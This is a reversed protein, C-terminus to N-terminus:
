NKKAKKPLTNSRRKPLSKKQGYAQSYYNIIWRNHVQNEKIRVSFEGNNTENELAIELVKKDAEAKSALQINLSFAAFTAPRYEEELVFVQGQREVTISFTNGPELKTLSNVLKAANANNITQHNIKSIVDGVNLGIKDAISSIAIASIEVGKENANDILNGSFGFREDRVSERNIVLTKEILDKKNFTNFIELMLQDYEFKLLVPLAKYSLLIKESQSKEEGVKYSSRPLMEPIFKGTLKVEVGNRKVTINTTEGIYLTNLYNTLVDSPEKGTDTIDMRGLRIIRDGSLFNMKNAQSYPLVSLVKLASGANAYESDVTVGFIDSSNIPFLNSSLKQRNKESYTSINTMLRRLRYELADPIDTPKVEITKKVNLKSALVANNSVSCQAPELEVFTTVEGGKGISLKVKYAQGAKANLQMAASQSVITEYFSSLEYKNSNKIEQIQKFSLKPMIVVNLNHEGEEFAYDYESSNILKRQRHSYEQKLGNHGIIMAIYAKDKLEFPQFSLTACEQAASTFALSLYSITFLAIEKIRQLKLFNFVLNM